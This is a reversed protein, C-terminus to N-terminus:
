SSTNRSYFLSLAEYIRLNGPVSIVGRVVSRDRCVTDVVGKGATSRAVRLRGELM